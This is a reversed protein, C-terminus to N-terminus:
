LKYCITSLKPKRDQVFLQYAQIFNLDSLSQHWCHRRPRARKQWNERVRLFQCINIIYCEYECPLSTNFLSGSPNTPSCAYIVIHLMYYLTKTKKRSCIISISSIFNLDSLSKHWGHRRARARKQWNERVRFISIYQYSLM